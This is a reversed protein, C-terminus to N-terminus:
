VLETPLILISKTPCVKVCIGCLDCLSHNIVPLKNVMTIAKTPCKKECALCTICGIKCTSKVFSASNQNRCLTIVTKKEPILEMINRPCTSVCIGCATCKKIDVVPLGNPSMKIADFTCVSACDGFGLCSFRCLKNDLRLQSAQACTLGQQTISSKIAELEGGQCVAVAHYVEFEGPAVGLGMIESLSSTTTAGGARCANIKAKGNALNEAFNACGSYGCAGCNAGPLCGMILEVKPDVEVKFISKFYGLMFGFLAGLILLVLASYILIMM